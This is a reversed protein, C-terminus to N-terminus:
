KVVEKLNSAAVAHLVAKFKVINEQIHATSKITMNAAVMNQECIESLNSISNNDFKIDVPRPEGSESCYRRLISQFIGPKDSLLVQSKGSLVDDMLKIIASIQEQQNEM